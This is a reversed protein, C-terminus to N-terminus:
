RSAASTSNPRTTKDMRIEIPQGRRPVDKKEEISRVKPRIARLRPNATAITPREERKSRSAMRGKQGIGMGKIGSSKLKKSAASVKACPRRM